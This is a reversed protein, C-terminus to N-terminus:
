ETACKMAGYPKSFALANILHDSHFSKFRRGRRGSRLYCDFLDVFVIIKARTQGGKDVNIPPTETTLRHDAESVSCFGPVAVSCYGGVLVGM